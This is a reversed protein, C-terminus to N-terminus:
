KHQTLRVFFHSLDGFPQHLFVNCLLSFATHTQHLPSHNLTHASHALINLWQPKLTGKKKRRPCANKGEKSSFHCWIWERGCDNLEVSAQPDWLEGPRYPSRHVVCVCSHRQSSLPVSWLFHHIKTHSIWMGIPLYVVGQPNGRKECIAWIQVDGRCSVLLWQIRHRPLCTNRILYQSPCWFSSLIRGHSDHGPSPTSLHKFTLSSFM